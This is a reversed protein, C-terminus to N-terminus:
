AALAGNGACHLGAKIGLRHVVVRLHCGICAHHVVPCTDLLDETHLHEVEDRHRLVLMPDEERAVAIDNQIGIM